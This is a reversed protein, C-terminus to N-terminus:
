VRTLAPDCVPRVRTVCPDTICKGWHFRTESGHLVRTFGTYFALFVRTFGTIREFCMQRVRKKSERPLVSKEFGGRLKCQRQVAKQNGILQGNAAGKSGEKQGQFAVLPCCSPLVLAARLCCSPLLLAVLPCCSPLLLAVRPCCSPLLNCFSPLLCPFTPFLRFLQFTKVWALCLAQKYCNITQSMVCKKQCRGM